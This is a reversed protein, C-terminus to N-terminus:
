MGKSAVGGGGWCTGILAERLLRHGSSHGAWRTNRSILALSSRGGGKSQM